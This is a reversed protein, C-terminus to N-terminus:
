WGVICVRDLDFAVNNIDSHVHKGGQYLASPTTVNYPEGPWGGDLQVSAGVIQRTQLVLPGAHIGAVLPQQKIASYATGDFHTLQAASSGPIDNLEAYDHSLSLDDIAYLAIQHQVAGGTSGEVTMGFMIEANQLVLDYTVSAYETGDFHIADDLQTWAGAAAFATLPQDFPQMTAFLVLHQRPNTPEPDCEDGIGDGDSDVQTSPVCPCLDIADPYGDGDEDHGISSADTGAPHPAFGIRGCGVALVIVLSRGM